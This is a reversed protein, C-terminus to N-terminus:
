RGESQATNLEQSVGLLNALASGETPNISSIEGAIVQAAPSLETTTPLITEAEEETTATEEEKDAVPSTCSTLHLIAAIISSVILWITKKKMEARGSWVEIIEPYEVYCLLTYKEGSVKDICEAPVPILITSLKIIKSSQYSIIYFYIYGSLLNIYQCIRLLPIVICV